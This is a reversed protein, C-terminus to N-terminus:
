RAGRVAVGCGMWVQIVEGETIRMDRVLYESFFEGGALIDVM